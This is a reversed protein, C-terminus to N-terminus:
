LMAEVRRVNAVMEAFQRETLSVNSELESPEAELMFHMEIMKCGRAVAALPVLPDLCHSSLGYFGDDKFGWGFWPLSVDEVACPYEGPCYLRIVSGHWGFPAAVRMLDRSSVIVPKGRSQVLQLLGTNAAEFHAIKYAPCACRELVALSDTGFVSAFTVLGIDRGHQFLPPMWELPTAARQYLTRMTYGQSAWPEPAPGDGRLGLLEEVTYAQWKFFDAGAAKAADMMRLARGFDGNHSNSGEAVFRCPATDVVGPETGIQIGGINM